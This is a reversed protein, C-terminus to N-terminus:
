PEKRGKRIHLVCCVGGGVMAVVIIAIWIVPNSDDGTGTAVTALAEAPKESKPSASDKSPESQEVNVTVSGNGAGISVDEGAVNIAQAVELTIPYSQEGANDGVQFNLTVVTGDATIDTLENSAAAFVFQERDLRSPLTVDSEKFVNGNTVSTLTLASHDYGVKLKLGWIGPNGELAVTVAATDGKKATVSATTLEANSEANVTTSVAFSLVLVCLMCLVAPIKGIGSTNRFNM